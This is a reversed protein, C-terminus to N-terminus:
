RENYIRLKRKIEMKDFGNILGVLVIRVDNMEAVRTFCYSLYQFNGEFNYKEKELLKLPYQDIAKEFASLPDGKLKQEIALSIISSYETGKMKDALSELNEESLDKLTENSIKGHPLFASKALLFNRTRLAIGINVCDVKFVFIKSLTKDKECVKFLEEYYAKTMIENISQGSAKGGVFDADCQLLAKGMQEPLNGYEDGMILDKLVGKEITGDPATIHEFDKKLHKSKIFVEANHFDNKLLFFKAENEPSGNEKLFAFFKKQEADILKEFDIASDVSIGDGFNVESLIKIADEATPADVMRNLRDEGLLNKSLAKARANAYILNSM